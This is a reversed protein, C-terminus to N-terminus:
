KRRRLGRRSEKTLRKSVVYCAKGPAYTVFDFPGSALFSQATLLTALNRISFAAISLFFLAYPVEFSPLALNVGRIYRDRGSQPAHSHM